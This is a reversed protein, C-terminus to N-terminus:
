GGQEPDLEEWSQVNYVRLWSDEDAVLPYRPDDMPMSEEYRWSDDDGYDYDDYDYGSRGYLDEYYADDERRWFHEEADPDFDGILQEEYEPDFAFRPEVWTPLALPRAPL